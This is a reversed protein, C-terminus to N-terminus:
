RVDDYMYINDINMFSYPYLNYWDPRLINYTIFWAFFVIFISLITIDRFRRNPVKMVVQVFTLVLFPYLYMSVRGIVPFVFDMFSILLCAASAMWQKNDVEIHYQRAMKRSLYFLWLNLLSIFLSAIPLVEREENVSLYQDDTSFFDVLPGILYKAIIIFAIILLIITKKNLRMMSLPLLLLMTIATIHFTTAFLVSFIYTKWNGKLYQTFGFYFIVTAIGQRIASYQNELQFNLMLFLCLFLGGYSKMDRFLSVNAITILFSSITIIAYPNSFLRSVINEFVQYGPEIRSLWNIEFWGLNSSSMKDRVYSYYHPTDNLVTIDRFGFVVFLLVFALLTHMKQTQGRSSQNRNLWFVVFFLLYYCCVLVM